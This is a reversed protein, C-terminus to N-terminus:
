KKLNYLLYQYLFLMEYDYSSYLASAFEKFLKQTTPLKKEIKSNIISMEEGLKKYTPNEMYIKENDEILHAIYEVNKSSFNVGRIFHVEKNELITNNLIAKICEVIDQDQFPKKIYYTMIEKKRCVIDMDDFASLIIFIPQYIELDSQIKNIVDTAPFDKKKENTLVIDPKYTIICRELEKSDEPRQKLIIIEDEFSELTKSIREALINNTEAVLITKRKM